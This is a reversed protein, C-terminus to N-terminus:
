EIGTLCFSCKNCTWIFNIPDNCIYIKGDIGSVNIKYYANPMEIFMQNLPRRYMDGDCLKCKQWGKAFNANGGYESGDINYIKEM